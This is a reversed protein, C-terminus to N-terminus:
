VRARPRWAFYAAIAGGVFTVLGIMAWTASPGDLPACDAVCLIPAITVIGLGQLLWLGGLPIAIVAVIILIIKKM